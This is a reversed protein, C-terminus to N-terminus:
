LTLLRNTQKMHLTRNQIIIALFLIIKTESVDHLPFFSRQQTHWLLPSPIQKDSVMLLKTVEVTFFIFVHLPSWANNTQPAENIKKGHPGGTFEKQECGLIVIVAITVFLVTLNITTTKAAVATTAIWITTQKEQQQVPSPHPESEDESM